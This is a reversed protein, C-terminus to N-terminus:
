RIYLEVIEVPTDEHINHANSCIRVEIIITPQPRLYNSVSGPPVTSLVSVLRRVTKATGSHTMLSGGVILISVTMMALKVSTTRGLLQSARLVHVAVVIIALVLAGCTSGPDQPEM